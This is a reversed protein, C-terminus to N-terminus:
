PPTEPNQHHYMRVACFQGAGQSAALPTIYVRWSARRGTRGSSPPPSKRRARAARVCRAPAARPRRCRPRDRGSRRSRARDRSRSSRRPRPPLPARRLRAGTSRRRPHTPFIRARRGASLRKAAAGGRDHDQHRQRRDAGREVQREARRVHWSLRDRAAGARRRLVLREVRQDRPDLRMEFRIRFVAAAPLHDSRDITRSPRISSATLARRLASRM